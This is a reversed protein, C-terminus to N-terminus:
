NDAAQQRDIIWDVGYIVRRSEFILCHAPCPSSRTYGLLKPTGRDFPTFSVILPSINDDNTALGRFTPSAYQPSNFFAGRSHFENHKQKQKQRGNSFSCKRQNKRNSHVFCITDSLIIPNIPQALYYKHNNKM